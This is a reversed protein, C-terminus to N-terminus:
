CTGIHGSMRIGIRKKCNRFPCPCLFIYIYLYIFISMYILFSPALDTLYLSSPFFCSLFFFSVLFFCSLILFSDLFFCSRFLYSLKLLSIDVVVAVRLGVSKHLRLKDIWCSPCDKTWGIHSLLAPQVERRRVSM